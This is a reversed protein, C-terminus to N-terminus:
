PLPNLTKDEPDIIIMGQDALAYLLTKGDSAVKVVAFRANDFKPGDGEQFFFTDPCYRLARKSTKVYDIRIENAEPEAGTPPIRSFSAIRNADLRLFVEGDRPLAEISDKRPYIDPSFLLEMYDGQILSRPDRPGLPLYITESQAFERELKLVSANVMFLASGFVGTVVLLVLMHHKDRRKPMDDASSMGNRSIIRPLYTVMLTAAGMTILILSKTLLTLDLDYYYYGLSGALGLIGLIAIGRQNAAVGTATLILAVTVYDQYFVSVAAGLLLTAALMILNASIRLRWLSIALAAIYIADAFFIAFYSKESDFSSVVSLLASELIIAALLPLYLPHAATKPLVIVGALLGVSSWLSLLFYWGGDFIMLQSFIFLGYIGLAMLFAFISDRFRNLIRWTIFSFVFATLIGSFGIANREQPFSVYSFEFILYGFGGASASLGAVLLSIALHRMFDASGRGARGAAVGGVTLIIGFCMMVLAVIMDSSNSPFTVAAILVIASTLFYGSLWGGAAFIAKLYWPSQHNHSTM